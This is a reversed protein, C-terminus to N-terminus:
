CLSRFAWVPRDEEKGVIRVSCLCKENHTVPTEKEQRPKAAFNLEMQLM